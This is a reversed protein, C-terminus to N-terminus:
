KRRDSIQRGTAQGLIAERVTSAQEGHLLKLLEKGVDRWYDKVTGDNGQIAYMCHIGAAEGFTRYLVAATEKPPRLSM